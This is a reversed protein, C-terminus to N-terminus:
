DKGTSGFGGEGRVTDDLATVEIPDVHMYPVVILQAIREGVTPVYGAIKLLIEGRYDSDIIGVTNKLYLGESGLSSRPVVMGFTGEPLQVRLGTHVTDGEYSAVTLDLGASNPTGRKPEPGTFPLIM